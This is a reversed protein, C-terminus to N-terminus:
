FTKQETQFHKEWDSHFESALSFETGKLLPIKKLTFSILFTLM